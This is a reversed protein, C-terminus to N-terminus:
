QVNAAMVLIDHEWGHTRIVKFMTIKAPITYKLKNHTVIAALIGIHCYIGIDKNQYDIPSSLKLWHVWHSQTDVSHKATALLLIADVYIHM